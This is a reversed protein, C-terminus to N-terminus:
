YQKEYREIDIERTERKEWYSEAQPDLKRKLFDKRLLILFFHFVSFVSSFM